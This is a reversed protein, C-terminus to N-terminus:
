TLSPVAHGWGDTLASQILKERVKVLLRRFKSYPVEKRHHLQGVVLGPHIQHLSAFARIDLESFLPGKRVVFDDLVDRPILAEEAFRDAEREFDPKDETNKADEGVLRDDLALFANHLGDGNLAHKLEHMLTFWSYDIRDYRLSVIIIPSEEDLWLCVGDIKTKALHEVVLFRIGWDALVEPVHRVEESDELLTRLKQILGESARPDFKASVPVAKALHKARCMWAWQSPTYADYPTSMRAAAPLVNPIDELTDIFFFDLARQELVEANSSYEIWGRKVMEKIPGRSYIRARLAITPDPTSTRTKYLQWAADLNLWLQASTDFAQALGKATEPTIGRKDLIIENVLQLPRGLIEALDNQTWGRGELFDKIYEGPSFVEAPVREPM